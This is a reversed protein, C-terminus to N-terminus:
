FRRSKYTEMMENVINTITKKASKVMNEDAVFWTVEFSHGVRYPGTTYPVIKCRTKDMVEILMQRKAFSNLYPIDFETLVVRSGVDKFIKRLDIYVSHCPRLFTIIGYNSYTASVELYTDINYKVADPWYKLSQIIEYNSLKEIGLMKKHVTLFAKMVHIYFNHIDTTEVNKMAENYRHEIGWFSKMDARRLALRSGLSLENCRPESILNIFLLRKLNTIYLLAVEFTQLSNYAEGERRPTDTYDKISPIYEMVITYNLDNLEKLYDWEFIGVSSGFRQRIQKDRRTGSPYKVYLENNMHVEVFVIKNVNMWRELLENM